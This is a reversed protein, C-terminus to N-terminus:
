AAPEDLLVTVPGDNVLEVRMHAGFQGTSVTLGRARLRAVLAQYVPEAERPSAAGSFSPRRGRRTDALLTFQSVALVAGGSEHVDHNMRGDSDAFVRLSAIRDALHEADASTDGQAVAVLILLGPGIRGVEHGPGADPAQEGDVVYVAARSVRQVVAKM